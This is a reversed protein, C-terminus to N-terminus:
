ISNNQLSAVINEIQSDLLQMLPLYLLIYYIIFFLDVYLNHLIFISKLSDLMLKISMFYTVFSFYYCCIVLHIINGIILRIFYSGLIVFHIKLLCSLFLTHFLYIFLIFMLFAILDFM